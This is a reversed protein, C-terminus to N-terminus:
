KGISFLWMVLAFIAIFGLYVYFRSGDRFDDVDKSKNNKSM